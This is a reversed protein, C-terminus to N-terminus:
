SPTPSELLNYLRELQEPTFPLQTSSSKKGQDSNSAQFERGDKKKFNPPKRKGEDLNKTDLTSGGSESSQPTKGMMTGQRADERRIEAFTERLTPLPIKGLVRGRVMAKQVNGIKDDYCLDLKQWLTFLENYYATVSRDGQKAYWLAWTPIVTVMFLTGTNTVVLTEDLLGDGSGGGNGCGGSDGRGGGNGRDGGTELQLQEGRNSRPYAHALFSWRNNNNAM